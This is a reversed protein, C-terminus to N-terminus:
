TRRTAEAAPTMGQQELNALVFGDIPNKIWGARKTPAAPVATPVRLLWEFHADNKAVTPTM